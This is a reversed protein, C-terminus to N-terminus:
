NKMLKHKAECVTEETVGFEEDVWVFQETIEENNAEDSFFDIDDLVVFSEIQYKNEYDNDLEGGNMKPTFTNCQLWKMIEDNRARFSIHDTQGIWRNTFIDLDTEDLDYDLGAQIMHHLLIIKQVISHRWSSTLVISANTEHILEVLHKLCKPELPYKKQTHSSYSSSSTDMTNLVGDVDLFIIRYSKLKSPLNNPKMKQISFSESTDITKLIAEIYDNKELLLLHPLQIGAEQCRHALEKITLSQLEEHTDYMFCVVEKYTKAQHKSGNTPNPPAKNM